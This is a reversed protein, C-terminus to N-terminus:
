RFDIERLNVLLYLEEPLWRISNNHCNLKVLAKLSVVEKPVKDFRNKSLDLAVDSVFVLIVFPADYVSHSSYSTVTKNIRNLNESVECM